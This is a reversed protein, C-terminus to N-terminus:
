STVIEVSEIVVDESPSGDATGAAEMDVVTSEFGSSVDGFLSYQPPLSTGAEGTIIFFQSGNTNPGSNAMAVSGVEYEGTDPLEDDFEYGPGGSGSGTPDGCQVVFGPIIRHCTTEDFYRNRALFVFNNVTNPAREQDLDITLEGKNTTITAAYDVSPDLCFPPAQDFSQTQESTGGPPPCGEPVTEGSAAVGGATDDTATGATATATTDGTTADPAVTAATAGAGSDTTDDGAFLNVIVVLGVIAVIGGGAVIAIRTWRRRTEARAMEQRRVERNAKQRERKETGM